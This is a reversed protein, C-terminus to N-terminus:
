PSPSPKPGKSTPSPVPTPAPSPSPTPRPGTTPSPSPAPSPSASRFPQPTATPAPACAGLIPGGWSHQYFFYATRSGLPGRVGPGARARDTWDSDAAKLTAPGREAKVADVEWTGCSYTYILGPPDIAGPAGPQTGDIFWEKTTQRTWAGPAGGSWADITAQVVGAPPTFDAVPWGDSLDQVFAHWIRAPGDFSVAPNRAAPTSHDSNGMWVGVAVAPASPDAPPALYGYTSLDQTQDSTGTKVAAPRRQGNPGNTLELYASWMPNQSPDTNGAIIDTTLFAAQPSLAQVGQTAPDPARYVVRGDPADVELIMRPPVRVGGDALTGFASTLDFPTVEVTGIAGALGAQLYQNTGGVFHIGMREAQAAVAKNGVLQLTRIAPINLSYQLAKRVLVPGREQQDADHPAWTPAFRQQIDLLVSGPTLVHQQFATSYLIPKWASGPQRPGDALVDFQPSFKPSALDSRYFGASGMYALVDGTRYDLAILAGDHVDKGVLDQIWARDAQPIKLQDLLYIEQSRPLDPAIVAATLWKEALQQANWDLTTIVRYGGTEAADPSGLISALQAKVQLDFQPARAQRVPPPSLIVPEAMAAQVQAPTLHTWRGDELSQLVWDRRVMPPSGPPVVLRGQADKQAYLYPDLSTPSKPLGALLAAQSPTLQSLDDIDFYIKAAAAIGYADHGYFIQDLYATIIRDKGAQGPFAATLRAAQIIEKAKRIYQNAGPQLLDKPLLRARVLQQTITSAGRTPDSGADQLFAAVIALPDYGPNEWFTRDEAGTTADLVLKPVEDFTVVRRDQLEFTTLLVKGSRDYVNTPQAFSLSEFSAVDPLGVSLAQLTLVAVAALVAVGVVVVLATGWLILAV